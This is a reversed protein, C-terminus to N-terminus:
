ARQQETVSKSFSCLPHVYEPAYPAWWGFACCKGYRIIMLSHLEINKKEMDGIFRLIDESHMGVAEPTTKEFYSM